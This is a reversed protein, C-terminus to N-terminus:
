TASWLDRIGAVYTTGNLGKAATLAQMRPNETVSIGLHVWGTPGFEYIVQDFEPLNEKIWNCVDLNSVGIVHFDAACGFRHASTASGHVAKNVAPSRYGSTVIVPANFHARIKELAGAVLRLNRVTAEDPTNDLGLRSAAESVTLEKLTFHETLNM